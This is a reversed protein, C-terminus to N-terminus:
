EHIIRALLAAQSYLDLEREQMESQMLVSAVAVAVVISMGLIVLLYTVRLRKVVSWSQRRIVSGTETSLATFSTM